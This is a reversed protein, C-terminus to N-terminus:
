NTSNAWNDPDDVNETTILVANFTDVPYGDASEIVESDHDTPGMPIQEGKGLMELYDLAYTVFQTVPQTASADLDGRRIADLAQPTGDVSMTWIHGDQGAPVLKGASRLTQAVPDAYGDSAMFIGGLEPNSVLVGAVSSAATAPDWQGGPKIIVTIGPHNKKLCDQFGADREQATVQRMDGQVHLLSGDEGVKDALFECAQEGINYNDVQMSVDVKGGVPGLQLSATYVGQQSAYDLAPVVASPDAPVVILSKAGATVLNRIDSDQTGADGNASTPSLTKLGRETTESEFKSVQAAQAPDQLFLASYGIPTIEGAQATGAPNATQTPSCASLAGVAMAAAAVLALNRARTKM